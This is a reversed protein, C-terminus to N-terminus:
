LKVQLKVTLNDLNLESIDTMHHTDVSLIPRTEGHPCEVPVYNLHHHAISHKIIPNQRNFM